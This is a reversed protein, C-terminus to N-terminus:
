QWLNSLISSLPVRVHDPRAATLTHRGGWQRCTVGGRGPLGHQDEERAGGGSHVAEAHPRHRQAMEGACGALLPSLTMMYTACHCRISETAQWSVTCSTNLRQALTYTHTCIRTHIHTHTHTHMTDMEGHILCKTVSGHLVLDSPM